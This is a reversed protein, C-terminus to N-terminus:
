EFDLFDMQYDYKYLDNINFAGDKVKLGLLIEDYTTPKFFTGNPPLEFFDDQQQTNQIRRNMNWVRFTNNFLNNNLDKEIWENYSQVLLQNNFKADCYDNIENMSDLQILYGIHDLCDVFFMPPLRNEQELCDICFTIAENKRNMLERHYRTGRDEVPNLVRRKDEEIHISILKFMTYVSKKGKTGFNLRAHASECLNNTRIDSRYVNWVKPANSKPNLLFWYNKVYELFKKISEDNAAEPTEQIMLRFLFDLTMISSYGIPLLSLMTVRRVFHYFSGKENYCAELKLDSVKDMLCHAFHFLCGEFKVNPMKSVTNIVAKEFDGKIIVNRKFITLLRRSAIQEVLAFAKRYDSESKGTMKIFLCSICEGNVIGHMIFLQKKNNVIKFTADVLIVNSQALVYIGSVLGYVVISNNTRGLVFETSNVDEYSRPLNYKKMARHKVSTVMSSPIYQYETGVLTQGTSVTPNSLVIHEIEKNKRRSTFTGFEKDKVEDENDGGHEDIKHEGHFYRLGIIENNDNTTVFANCGCTCKYYNIYTGYRSRFLFGDILLPKGLITGKSLTHVSHDDEAEVTVTPYDLRNHYQM